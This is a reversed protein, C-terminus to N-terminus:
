RNSVADDGGYSGVLFSSGRTTWVRRDDVEGPVSGRRSQVIGMGVRHQHAEGQVVEVDRGPTRWSNTRDGSHHSICGPPPRGAGPDDPTAVVISGQTLPAVGSPGIEVRDRRIVRNQEPAHTVVDGGGVGLCQLQGADGAFGGIGAIAYDVSVLMTLRDADEAFVRDPEDRARDAIGGGLLQCM